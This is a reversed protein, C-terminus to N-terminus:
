ISTFYTLLTLSDVRREAARPRQSSILRNTKYWVTSESVVSILLKRNTKALFCVKYWVTSESVGSIPLKFGRKSRPSARAIM